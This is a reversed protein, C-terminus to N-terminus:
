DLWVAAVAQATALDPARIVLTDGGTRYLCTVDESAWCLAGGNEVQGALGYKGSVYEEYALAFEEGDRPTDWTLYLTAVLAEEGENWYVSYSDGGWGTAAIDVQSTPLQQALYERLFFEGFIEEDLMQWGAGLTDTLPVTPVLQPEDGELYNQPHLIQETSQPPDAWAADIADFGGRNYLTQVFEFGSTYPFILDNALVPPANDFVPSEFELVAALMENLEEFTFFGAQLYLSEVLTAEGEILALLAMTAESDLEEDDLLDLAFHQDQLAHVFEHAHTRQELPDLVDDDSVVVFEDTESDYFGAIQESYLDLTFRYYDFDLPVFDFAHLIITFERASEETLHSPAGM